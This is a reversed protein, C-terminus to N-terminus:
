NVIIINLCLDDRWRKLLIDAAKGCGWLRTARFRSVPDHRSAPYHSQPHDWPNALRVDTRYHDHSVAGANRAKM